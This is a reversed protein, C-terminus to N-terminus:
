SDFVLLFLFDSRLGQWFLFCCYYWKSFSIGHCLLPYWGAFEPWSPLWSIYRQYQNHSFPGRTQFTMILVDIDAAGRQRSKNEKAVSVSLSPQSCYVWCIDRWVCRHSKVTIVDMNEETLSWNMDMIEAWQSPTDQQSVEVERCQWDNGMASVHLHEWCLLSRILSWILVPLTEYWKITYYHTNHPDSSENKFELTMWQRSNQRLDVDM